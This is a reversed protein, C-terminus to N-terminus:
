GANKTAAGCNPCFHKDLTLFFFSSCFECTVQTWPGKGPIGSFKKHDDEENDKLRNKKKALEELLLMTQALQELYEAPDDEETLDSESCLMIDEDYLQIESIHLTEMASLISEQTATKLRGWATLTSGIEDEDGETFIGKGVFVRQDEEDAWPDDDVKGKPVQTLDRSLEFTHGTDDIKMEIAHFKMWVSFRVRAGGYKARLDIVEEDPREVIKAKRFRPSADELIEITLARSEPCGWSWSANRARERFSNSDTSM